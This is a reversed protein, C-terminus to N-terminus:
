VYVWFILRESLKSLRNIRYSETLIRLPFHSFPIFPLSVRAVDEADDLSFRITENLSEHNHVLDDIWCDVASLGWCGGSPRLFPHQDTVAIVKHEIADPSRNYNRHLLLCSLTIPQILRSCFYITIGIEENSWSVENSM